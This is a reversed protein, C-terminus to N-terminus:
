DGTGHGKSGGPPGTSYELVQQYNDWANNGAPSTLRRAKLDAEAAALLRTVEAEEPSLAPERSAPQEAEAKEPPLAQETGAM